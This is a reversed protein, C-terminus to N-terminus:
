AVPAFQGFGATCWTSGDATVAFAEVDPLEELWERSGPGWAFAATAWADAATLGRALVTVSVLGHRPPSGTYPDLIHCGREATGSTAVALEGEGEVVTVFRGPHLPDSIGVRWPGGPDRRGSLQIDGGGNICTDTVGAATLLLSAREVAWGKVLGTPDLRGGYRANFWGHSRAEASECLSLVEAILPDCEAQTLEGRSLRSLESEPKYTSFLEDVRHLWRAAAEVAAEAQAAGEGRIDFSFVTGMAHEVRRVRRLDTM